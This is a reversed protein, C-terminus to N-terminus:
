KKFKRGGNGGRNPVRFSSTPKSIHSIQSLSDSHVFFINVSTHSEPTIFDVPHQLPTDWKFRFHVSLKLCTLEGCTGPKSWNDLRVGVVLMRNTKPKSSFYIQTYIFNSRIRSIIIKLISIQRYLLHTPHNDCPIM